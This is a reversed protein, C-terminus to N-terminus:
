CPPPPPAPRAGFLARGIRILTAGEEIALEFDDSMGMSLHRWDAAPLRAALWDRLLRLRRFVTRVTAPDPTFPAITMLGQVQLHPLDLLPEVAHLFAPLQAQNELGGPLDFGEKSAEGSVNVQLLVPLPLAAPATEHRQRNLTEALRLSDLSHIMDFQPAAQRAKNRQLHGILHWHLRQQESALEAMKPLAEQVRNEGLHVVGAAIAQAIVAPAHTKTVAILTVEAPARGARRAAADVRAAVAAVKNAIPADPEMQNGMPGRIQGDSQRQRRCGSPGARAAPAGM